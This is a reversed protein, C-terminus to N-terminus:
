REIFIQVKMVWSRCPLLVFYLNPKISYMGGWNHLALFSSEGEVGFQFSILIYKRRKKNYNNQRGKPFFLDNYFCAINLM